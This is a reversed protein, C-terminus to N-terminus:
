KLLGLLGSLLHAREPESSPNAEQLHSIRCFISVPLEGIYLAQLLAICLQLRNVVRSPSEKM